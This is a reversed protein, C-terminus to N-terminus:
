QMTYGVEVITRLKIFNSMELKTYTPLFSDTESVTSTFIVTFM